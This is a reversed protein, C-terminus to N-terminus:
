FGVAYMWLPVTGALSLLVLWQFIRLVTDFPLNVSPALVFAVYLPYAFGVQDKPDRPNKPDLARGYFGIQMERTMDPFYPDRGHLLLERTGLWRPYLDSLNGRPIGHEAAYQKQHPVLICEVYFWM